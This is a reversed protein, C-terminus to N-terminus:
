SAFKARPIRARYKRTCNVTQKKDTNEFSRLYLIPHAPFSRKLVITWSISIMHTKRNAFIIKSGTQAM